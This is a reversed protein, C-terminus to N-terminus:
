RASVVKRYRVEICSFLVFVALGASVAGLIAVGWAHGSLRLLEADTGYADNPNSRVAAVILFIGIPLFVLSRATIGIAGAGDALRRVPRSAGELELGDRFDHRIAGRIQLAWVVIAIVGFGIVIWRGGPLHLLRATTKQQQQQSGTQQRGALFAAPVSALVLYFAGQAATVWRRGRSVTRDRVAGVLRAIGYLFFGLGVAAIAVRGLLPRSVRDLAGNANVQHRPPGGLLAIRITLGTLIMYFATRGALGLRGLLSLGEETREEVEDALGGSTGQRAGAQTSVSNTM